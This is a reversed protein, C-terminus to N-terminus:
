WDQCRFKLLQRKPVKVLTGRSKYSCSNDVTVVSYTAFFMAYGKRL